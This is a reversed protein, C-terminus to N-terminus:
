FFLLSIKQRITALGKLITQLQCMHTTFSVFSSLAAHSPPPVVSSDTFLNMHYVYRVYTRLLIGINVALIIYRFKRRSSQVYEYARLYQLFDKWVAHWVLLLVIYYPWWVVHVVVLGAKLNAYGWFHSLLFYVFGFELSM